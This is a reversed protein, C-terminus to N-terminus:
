GNDAEWEAMLRDHETQDIEGDSFAVGYRWPLFELPTRNVAYQLQCYESYDLQIAAQRERHSARRIAM